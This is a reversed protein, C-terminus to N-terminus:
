FRRSRRALARPDMEGDDEDSPNLGGALAAPATPALLSRLAKADAELEEATDGRLRSAFEDPLEFRRAVSGVLVSRELEANKTKVEALAAEFEEPSKAESLKEEADRLRTRYSAAEGRVKTLEKRAWEPLAGEPNEGPTDAPQEEGSPETTEGPAPTETAPTNQESLTM